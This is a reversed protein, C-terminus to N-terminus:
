LKLHLRFVSHLFRLLLSSVSGERAAFGDCAASGNWAYCACILSKGRMPEKKNM